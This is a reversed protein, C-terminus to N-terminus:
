AGGVEVVVDAGMARAQELKEDSSSTQIVIAL